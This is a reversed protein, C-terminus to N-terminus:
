QVGLGGPVNRPTAAVSREAEGRVCALLEALQRRDDDSEFPETSPTTHIQQLRDRVRQMAKGEARKLRLEGLFDGDAVSGAETGAVSETDSPTPARRPTPPQTLHRSVSDDLSASALAELSAEIHSLRQASELPPRYGEGDEVWPLEAGVAELEEHAASSGTSGCDLESLESPQALLAELRAEDAESMWVGGAPRAYKSRPKPASTSDAHESPPAADAAADRPTPQPQRPTVPADTLFTGRPTAFDAAEEGPPAAVGSPPAEAVTDSAPQETSAAQVEKAKQVEDLRQVELLAEFTKPDDVLQLIHGVGHEPQADRPTLAEREKLGAATLGEVMSAFEPGRMVEGAEDDRRRLSDLYTALETYEGRTSGEHGALQARVKERGDRLQAARLEGNLREMSEEVRSAETTRALQTSAAEDFELDPTDSGINRLLALEANLSALESAADATALDAAMPLLLGNRQCPFKSNPQMRHARARRPMLSAHAWTNLM